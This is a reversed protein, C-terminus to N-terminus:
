AAKRFLPDAAGIRQEYRQPPRAGARSV